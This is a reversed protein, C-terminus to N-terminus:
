RDISSHNREMTDRAKDALSTSATQTYGLQAFREQLQEQNAGPMQTVVAALQQQQVAMETHVQRTFVEPQDFRGTAVQLQPVLEAANVGRAVEEKIYAPLVAEEARRFDEPTGGLRWQAVNAIIHHPPDGQAICSHIYHLDAPRLQTRDDIGIVNKEHVPIAKEFQQQAEYAMTLAVVDHLLPRSETVVILEDVVKELPTGQEIRSRAYAIDTEHHQRSEELLARLEVLGFEQEKPHREEFFKGYRELTQERVLIDKAWEVIGHAGAQMQQSFSEREDASSPVFANISPSLELLKLVKEQIEQEPMGNQLDAMAQALYDSVTLNPTENAASLELQPGSRYAHEHHVADMISQIEADTLGKGPALSDLSIEALRVEIEKPEYGALVMEIAEGAASRHLEQHRQWDDSARELAQSLDQPPLDHVLDRNISSLSQGQSLLEYANQQVEHKQEEIPSLAAGNELERTVEALRRQGDATLIAGDVQWAGHAAQVESQLSDLSREPFRESLATVIGDFSKGQEFMEYPRM